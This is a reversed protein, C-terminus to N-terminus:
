TGHRGHRATDVELPADDREAVAAHAAQVGGLYVEAVRALAGGDYPEPLGVNGEEDQVLLDTQARPGVDHKGDAKPRMAGAEEAHGKLRRPLEFPVFVIRACSGPVRDVQFQRQLAHGVSFTRTGPLDLGAKLRGHRCVLRRCSLLLVLCPLHILVLGAADAARRRRRRWGSNRGRGSGRERPSTTDVAVRRIRRLTNHLPPSPCVIRTDGATTSLGRRLIIHNSAQTRHLLRHHTMMENGDISCIQRADLKKHRRAGKSVRQQGQWVFGRDGTKSRADLHSGAALVPLERCVGGGIPADHEDWNETGPALFAMMLSTLHEHVGPPFVQEDCVYRIPRTQFGVTAAIIGFM